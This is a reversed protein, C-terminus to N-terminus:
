CPLEKRQAAGTPRTSQCQESLIGPYLDYVYSKNGKATVWQTAPPADTQLAPPIDWVRGVLAGSAPDRMIWGLTDDWTITLDRRDARRYIRPAGPDRDFRTILGDCRRILHFSDM